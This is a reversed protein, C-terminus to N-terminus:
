AEVPQETIPALRRMPQKRGYTLSRWVWELPGFRYHRLWWTSFAAELTFLTLAMMLGYLPRVKGLGLAYGSFLLDIAAIQVVYNTLAMRGASAFVNLRPVLGPRYAMLLLACSVYTFTLWQDRVLGYISGIDLPDLVWNAVAWSAVGFIAFLILGKRHGKVDEFVRHRIMLLGTIFLVMTNAPMLCWAQRYFWAMHHLRAGLLVLYNGQAQAADLAGYIGRAEAVKAAYFADVGANGSTGTLYLRIVLNYLVVSTASFVLAFVLNRDSWNRIFLLAVGWTAYGLLVNFGFFAHACFGMVFLVALRRLYFPTISLGRTEMRMFQLAFGAGFLMAFTGHSKTEVMRWILTRIVDEFGGPETSHDHFHVVIMGLLAIGRLIDLSTIRGAPEAAPSAVLPQDAM